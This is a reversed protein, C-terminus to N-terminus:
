VFTILPRKYRSNIICPMIIREYIKLYESDCNILEKIKESIIIQDVRMGRMHDGTHRELIISFRDNSFVFCNFESAKKDNFGEDDTIVKALSALRLFESDTGDAIMLIRKM